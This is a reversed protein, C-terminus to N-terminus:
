GWSQSVADPTLCWMTFISDPALLGFGITTSILQPGLPGEQLRWVQVEEGVCTSHPPIMPTHPRADLRTWRGQSSRYFVPGKYGM